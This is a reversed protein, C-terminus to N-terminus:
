FLIFAKCLIICQWLSLYPFSDKHRPLCQSSISSLWSHITKIARERPSSIAYCSLISRETVGPVEMMISIRIMSSVLSRCYICINVKLHLCWSSARTWSCSLKIPKRLQGPVTTMSFFGSFSLYALMNTCHSSRQSEWDQTPWTPTFTRCQLM